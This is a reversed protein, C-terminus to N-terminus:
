KIILNKNHYFKALISFYLYTALLFPFQSLYRLNRIFFEPQSDEYFPPRLWFSIVSKRCRKFWTPHGPCGFFREPFIMRFNSPSLDMHHGNSKRSIDVSHRHLIWVINIYYGHSRRAVIHSNGKDMNSLSTWYFCLLFSYATGFSSSM